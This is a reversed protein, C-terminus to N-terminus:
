RVYMRVEGQCFNPCWFDNIACVREAAMYSLGYQLCLLHVPIPNDVRITIIKERQLKIQNVHNLLIEAMNELSQIISPTGLESRVQDIAVQIDQRVM